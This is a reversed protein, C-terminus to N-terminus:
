FCSFPNQISLNVPSLLMIENHYNNIKSLKIININIIVNTTIVNNNNNVSFETQTTCLAIICKKKDREQNKSLESKDM